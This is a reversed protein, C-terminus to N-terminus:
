DAMTVENTYTQTAKTLYSRPPKLPGPKAADNRRILWQYGTVRYDGFNWWGDLNRVAAEQGPCYFLARNIGTEVLLDASRNPVDWLASGAPDHRPYRDKYDNAYMELAIGIQRLNSSCNTRRAKEKALTLAPLLLAALIAIVAIVVLLEILTFAVYRKSRPRQLINQGVGEDTIVAQNAKMSQNTRVWPHILGYCRGAVRRKDDRSKAFARSFQASTCM